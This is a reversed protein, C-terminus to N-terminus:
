SSTGLDKRRGPSFDTSAVMAKSLHQSLNRLLANGLRPIRKTLRNFKERDILLMRSPENAILRAHSKAPLILNGQGFCDGKVLKSEFSDDDTFRFSGELVIFMGPCRDGMELFEKGANCHIVTSTTILYLLRRVSLGRGLFSNRLAEMREDADPESEADSDLLTDVVVATINDAGGAEKAFEILQQPQGTIEKQALLEAIVSEDAFYNSLGDSCLLLRDGPILDFLLTDVTVFQHPGISRTLVHQYRSTAAEEKTLGGCLFMENALTHDVTLQHIEGGRMLYMRSDGVHAIIAKDDVIVLMTLTTGMGAYKPSSRSLQHVEQSATQVAEEAIQQIRVYRDPQGAASELVESHASIHESAFEIAREAAVEGAVHGGMGDCVMYLGLSEDILYQDENGDRLLGRDSLASAVIKM